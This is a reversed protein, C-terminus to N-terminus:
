RTVEDLDKGGSGYWNDRLVKVFDVFDEELAPGKRGCLILLARMILTFMKFLVYRDIDLMM